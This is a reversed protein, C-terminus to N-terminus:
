AAEAAQRQAIYQDLVVLFERLPAALVNYAGQIPSAVAGVVQARLVDKSPLEGLQRVEEASLARGELVAGRVALIRTTRAVESLKKAAAAADDGVFAIATPGQLLDVLLPKGAEEAARRALTNKAVAFSAGTERLAGRVDAIQTVSLGRYDAVIMSDAERIREALKEVVKRKEDVNM